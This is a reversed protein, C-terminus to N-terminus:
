TGTPELFDAEAMEENDQQQEMRDEKRKYHYRNYLKGSLRNGVKM